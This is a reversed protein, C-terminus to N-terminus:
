ESSNWVCQWSFLLRRPCKENLRYLRIRFLNNVTQYFNVILVHHKCCCNGRFYYDCDFGPITGIKFSGESPNEKDIHILGQVKSSFRETYIRVCITAESYNKLSSNKIVAFSNDANSDPELIKIGEVRPFLFLCLSLIQNFAEM